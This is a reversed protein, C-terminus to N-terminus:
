YSFVDAASLNDILEQDSLSTIIWAFCTSYDHLPHKAGM